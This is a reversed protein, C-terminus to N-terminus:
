KVSPDTETFRAARPTASSVFIGDRFLIHHSSWPPLVGSRPPHVTLKFALDKEEKVVSV